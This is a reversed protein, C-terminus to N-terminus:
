RPGAREGPWQWLASMLTVDTLAPTRGVQRLRRGEFIQFMPGASTGCYILVHLRKSRRLPTVFLM